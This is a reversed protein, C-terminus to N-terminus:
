PLFKLDRFFSISSFKLLHYSRGHENITLISVIFIDMKGFAIFLNLAIIEVFIRVFKKMLMSLAIRLKMHFFIWTALDTRLLSLDEPPFVM